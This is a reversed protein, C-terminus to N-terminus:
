KHFVVNANASSLGVPFKRIDLREKRPLGERCFLDLLRQTPFGFAPVVKRDWRDMCHTGHRASPPTMFMFRNGM